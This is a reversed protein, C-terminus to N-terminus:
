EYWDKLLAKGSGELRKEVLAHKMQAWQVNHVLVQIIIDVTKDIM